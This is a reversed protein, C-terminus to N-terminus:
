PTDLIPPLYRSATIVREIILFSKQRLSEVSFFSRDM